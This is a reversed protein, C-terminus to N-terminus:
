YLMIDLKWPLLGSVNKIQRMSIPITPLHYPEKTAMSIVEVVQSFMLVIQSCNTGTLCTFKGRPAVQICTNYVHMVLPKLVYGLGSKGEGPFIGGLRSNQMIKVGFKGRFLSIKSSMEPSTQFFSGKFGM